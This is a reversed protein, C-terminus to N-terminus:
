LNMFWVSLGVTHIAWHHLSKIILVQLLISLLVTFRISSLTISRKRRVSPLSWNMMFYDSSRHLRKILLSLALSVYSSLIIELSLYCTPCALTPLSMVMFPSMSNLLFNHSLKLSLPSSMLSEYSSSTRTSVM